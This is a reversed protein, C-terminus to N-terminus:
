IDVSARKEKTKRKKRYVYKFSKVGAKSKMGCSETVVSPPNRSRPSRLTREKERCSPSGTTETCNRRDRSKERSSQSDRKWEVENQSDKRTSASTSRERRREANTYSDPRSFRSKNKAESRNSKDIHRSKSGSLTRNAEPKALDTKTDHISRIATTAPTTMNRTAVSAYSAYSQISPSLPLLRSIKERQENAEKRIRTIRGLISSFCWHCRHILRTAAEHSVSAQTIIAITIIKSSFLTCCHRRQQIELAFKLCVSQLPSEFSHM